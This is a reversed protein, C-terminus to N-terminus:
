EHQGGVGPPTNDHRKINKALLADIDTSCYRVKRGNRIRPLAFGFRHLGELVVASIGLRAAAEFPLLLTVLPIVAPLESM